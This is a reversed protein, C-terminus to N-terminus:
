LTHLPSPLGESGSPSPPFFRLCLATKIVEVRSDMVAPESIGDRRDAGAGPCVSFTVTTKCYVFSATFASRDSSLLSGKM